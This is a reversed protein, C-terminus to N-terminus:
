IWKLKGSTERSKYRNRIRRYWAIPTQWLIHLDGVWSRTATYYTDALYIEDLNCDPELQTYWLGTLGPKTDFAIHQWQEKILNMENHKLPKVGVLALDGSLINFLEPLRYLELGELLSGLRFGEGNKRMTVFQYLHIIQNMNNRDNIGDTCINVRESTTLIKGTRLFLLFGIALAFPLTVMFLILAISFDFLREIGRSAIEQHTESMLFPDTVRIYEETDIDIVMNRNVIRNEVHVYRGVYTQDLITSEQITASSDVVVNAGVVVNPGLEVNRGSRFNNGILVPPHIRITPHLRSNRGLWIGRDRQREPISIFKLNMQGNGDEKSGTSLLVQQANQFCQISRLSNWYGDILHYHIKQGDGLLRPLLNHEIDFQTRNPILDLVQHNFIYVGTNLISQDGEFGDSNIPLEDLPEKKLLASEGGARSVIVTAEASWDKHTQYAENIDFDVLIDGPISVFDDRLGNQAWKLSGASGLIDRQLVYTLRVGWRQGTGFYREIAEPKNHLSILIDKIGQRALLGLIYSMVPRNAVPVM